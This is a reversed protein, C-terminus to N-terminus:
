VWMNKVPHVRWAGQAKMMELDKQSKPIEPAMFFDQEAIPRVRYGLHHAATPLFLELYIRLPPQLEAVAAFCASTWFSGCGLMSFVVNKERRLSISQWYRMFGPGKVHDMCHPQTTDDVRTLRHGLVDCKEKEMLALLRQNLDDVVPIEDFEALHVHTAGLEKIRPLVAQFVGQYSQRERPHDRTRLQPDDVRVICSDQNQWEAREGGYAIIFDQKEDRSRWYALMKAVAQQSQHTLLITVIKAM